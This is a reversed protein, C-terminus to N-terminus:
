RKVRPREHVSISELGLKERAYELAKWRPCKADKCKCSAVWVVNEIWDNGDERHDIMGIFALGSAGIDPRWQGDGGLRWLKAKFKNAPPNANHPGPHDSVLKCSGWQPTCQDVGLAGRPPRCLPHFKAM